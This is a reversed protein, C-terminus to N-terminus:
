AAWEVHVLNRKLEGAEDKGPIDALWRAVGARRM